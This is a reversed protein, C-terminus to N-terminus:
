YDVRMYCSNYIFLWLGDYCKNIRMKTNIKAIIAIVSFRVIVLADIRIIIGNTSSVHAQKLELKRM